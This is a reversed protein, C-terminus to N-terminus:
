RRVPRSHADETRAEVLDVRDARGEVASAVEASGQPDLM